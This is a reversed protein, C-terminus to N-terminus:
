EVWHSRRPETKQEARGKARAEAQEVADPTEATYSNERMLSRSIYSGNMFDLLVGLGFLFVSFAVGGIIVRLAEQKVSLGM